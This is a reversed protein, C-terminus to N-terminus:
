ASGAPGAPFAWQHGGAQLGLRQLGFRQLGVAGEDSRYAEGTLPWAWVPRRLFGRM